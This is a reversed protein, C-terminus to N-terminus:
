NLIKMVLESFEQIEELQDHLNEVKRCLGRAFQNSVCSRSSSALRACAGAKIMMMLHDIESKM